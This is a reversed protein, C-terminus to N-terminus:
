RNINRPSSYSFGLFQTFCFVYLHFTPWTMRCYSFCQPQKKKRIGQEYPSTTDASLQRLCVSQFLLSFTQWIVSWWLDSADNHFFEFATIIVIFCQDFTGYLVGIYQTWVYHVCDQIIYWLMYLTLIPKYYWGKFVCTWVFYLLGVHVSCVYVCLCVTAMIYLTCCLISFHVTRVRIGWV